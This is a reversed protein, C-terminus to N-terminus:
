SFTSEVGAMRWWRLLATAVRPRPFCRACLPAVEQLARRDSHRTRSSSLRRILLCCTFRARRTGEVSVLDYTADDAKVLKQQRDAVAASLFRVLRNPSSSLDSFLKYDDIEHPWGFVLQRAESSNSLAADLEPSLEPFHRSSCNPTISM